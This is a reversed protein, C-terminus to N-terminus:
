GWRSQGTGDLGQIEVRNNDEDFVFFRDIGRIKYKSDWNVPYGAAEIEKATARVDSVLMCFHRASTPEPDRVVLHLDVDGIRYWCGAFDFTEPRPTEELGLLEGYFQRARPLHTVNIQVHDIRIAQIKKM